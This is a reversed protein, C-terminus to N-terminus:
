IRNDNNDIERVNFGKKILYNYKQQYQGTKREKFHIYHKYGNVEVITNSNPLFFDCHHLGVEYEKVYPENLTEEFQKQMSSEQLIYQGKKYNTEHPLMYQLYYYMKRHKIPQKQCFEVLGSNETLSLYLLLDPVLNQATIKSLDVKM